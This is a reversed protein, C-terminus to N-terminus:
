SGLTLRMDFFNAQRLVRVGTRIGNGLTADKHRRGTKDDVFSVQADWTDIDDQFEYTVNYTAARDITVGDYRTCLWTRPNDGFVGVSNLHGLYNRSPARPNDRPNHRERRYFRIVNMAVMFEVSGAQTQEEHPGPNDPTALPTFKVIIPKKNGTEPDFEFETRAPQLTSSVELRPPADPDDPDQDFLNSDVADVGYDIEVHVNKASDEVFQVSLHNIPIGLVPHMEGYRPIGAANMANWLRNDPGGRVDEVTAHTFMKLGAASRELRANRVLDTTVDGTVVRPQGRGIATDDFPEDRPAKAM